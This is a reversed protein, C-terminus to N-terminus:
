MCTLLRQWCTQNAGGWCCSSQVPLVAHQVCGLVRCAQRCDYSLGRGSGGATQLAEAVWFFVLVVRPALAEYSPTLPPALVCNPEEMDCCVAELLAAM